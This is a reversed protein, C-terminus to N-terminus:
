RCTRESGEGAEDRTIACARPPRSDGDRAAAVFDLLDDEAPPKELVKAVGLEAARERIAALILRHDAHHAADDGGRAAAGGIGARDDAAHSPRAGPLGAAARCRGPVGGGVCLDAVRHGAVELLFRLSNSCPPTTTSSRRRM